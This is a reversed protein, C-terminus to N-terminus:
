RKNDPTSMIKEVREKVLLFLRSNYNGVKESDHEKEIIGTELNFDDLTFITTGGAPTFNNLKLNIFTKAIDNANTEGYTKVCSLSLVLQRRFDDESFIYDGCLNQKSTSYLKRKAHEIVAEIDAGTLFKNGSIYTHVIQENFTDEDLPSQKSKHTEHQTKYYEFLNLGKIFTSVQDKNKDFLKNLIDTFFGINCISAQFLSKPLPNDRVISPSIDIRENKELKKLKDAHVRNQKSVIGNFIEDCEEASPMFTYFKADFRGNRFLEPPIGKIDNATAFVFCCMGNTDKEQMWTLFQGMLRKSVGSSDGDSDGMAKEIEDIRVVCPSLSEIQRLAENMRHESEGVYKGRILGMDMSILPLGLINATSKALLSKGSGPIGSVLLGKLPKIESLWRAEDYNLIIDKMESLWDTMASMGNVETIGSCDVLKLIGSNTIIEEKEKQIIKTVKEHKPNSKGGSFYVYGLEDKINLFIQRIKSRSLGNIYRTILDLYDEDSIIKGDILDIGDQEHVLDSVVMKLESYGISPVRIVRVYPAHLKPIVPSSPTVIILSSSKINKSISNKAYIAGQHIKLFKSINKYLNKNFTRHERDLITSDDQIVGVVPHQPNELWAGFEEATFFVNPGDNEQKSFSLGNNCGVEQREATYRPEIIQCHRIIDFLLSMEDTILYIIPVESVIANKIRETVRGIQTSLYSDSM